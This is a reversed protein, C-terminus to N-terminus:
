FLFRGVADGVSINKRNYELKHNGIRNRICSVDAFSHRRDEDRCQIINIIRRQSGMLSVKSPAGAHM